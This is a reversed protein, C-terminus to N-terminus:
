PTCSVDAEARYVHGFFPDNFTEFVRPQGVPTCTYLQEASASTVADDIAGQVAVEVTLGRAAGTFVTSSPGAVAQPAVALVCVATGCVALSVSTRRMM